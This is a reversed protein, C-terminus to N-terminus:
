TVYDKFHELVRRTRESRRLAPPAEPEDEVAEDAEHYGEAVDAAEATEISPTFKEEEDSPTLQVPVSSPLKKFFSANRTVTREANQATIMSGKKDKIELPEPKFPTSMKNQKPQKLLVKDGVSLDTNKAHSYRDAYEKMETKRKADTQRVEQPALDHQIQPLTSKLKRGNLLESPSKGTTSHPTARYQRLFTFLEQRWSKGEIVATRIAKELTRMLREAEGNARPWMPTIRRHTFGFHTAFKQFDESNFPPGNDTRVINPIGQRAFISDLHPIVAKASTSRLIEVEPFRSFDDTVVLLYDGNPFPGCFDMSLEQWPGQPLPSMQLPESAPKADHNAAQCPLCERVMEEVMKDIGPFWVSDRLFRKTKVIGQHGSHALMIVRQRLRGPVIIRTGRLIVGNSVSLEQKIQQYQGVDKGVEHWKQTTIVRALNQLTEDTATADKIEQLTVASPMANTIVFNVYADVRSLHRPTQSRKPDPHRSMYDAPNDAGPKYVVTTEYPQLRLQLRELRATAKCTPNNFITELPKHDTIVRFSSGYLYLHFHEVGWIVALAERETQSYRSECDTLSRSAYAIINMGGDATLQTLIAGLGVPSADVILETELSPNFYKMVEPTAMRAKLCVFAHQEEPGWVWKANKHTLQRIPASISAFDKIFRALYQALGLFSRAETANKPASANILSSIKKDDASIGDASFHHGFFDISSQNFLCKDPNATLNNERMRQLVTRLAEDHDVQNKGFVIIDDSINRAGEVGQLVVPSSSIGFSSM